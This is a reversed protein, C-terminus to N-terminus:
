SEREGLREVAERILQQQDETTLKRRIVREALEAALEASSRHMQGLVEQRAQDIQKRADAIVELSARRAEELIKQRESEAQDKGKAVLREVQKEAAALRAQYQALLEASDEQRKQADAVTDAIAQERDRLARMVPKWAFRILVVLLLGFLGVAWLANYWRDAQLLEEGGQAMAPAAQALLVLALTAAPKARGAKRAM